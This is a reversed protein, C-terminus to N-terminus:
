WITGRPDFERMRRDRTVLPMGRDRASAYILRDAPDGGLEDDISAAQLAVTSSVPVETLGPMALARRVWSASGDRFEVRGKSELMGVEWCSIASVAVGASAEIAGRARESLRQPDSNLWLWAHTDLLVLGAGRDSSSPM